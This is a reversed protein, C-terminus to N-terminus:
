PKASRAQVTGLQRRVSILGAVIGLVPWTAMAFKKSKSAHPGTSKRNAMERSNTGRSCLLTAITPWFTKWEERFNGDTVEMVKRALEWLGAKGRWSGAVASLGLVDFAFDETCAQLYGDM